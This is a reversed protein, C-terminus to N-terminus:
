APCPIPTDELYFSSGDFQPLSSGKLARGGDLVHGADIAIFPNLIRRIIADHDRNVSGIMEEPNYRRGVKVGLNNKILESRIIIQQKSTFYKSSIELIGVGNHNDRAEKIGLHNMLWVGGSIFSLFACVGVAIVEFGSVLATAGAILFTTAAISTTRAFIKQARTPQFEKQQIPEPKQEPPSTQPLTTPTVPAAPAEVTPTTPNTPILEAPAPTGPAAPAETRPTASVLTIKPCQTPIPAIPVNGSRRSVTIIIQDGSENRVTTLHKLTPSNERRDSAKLEKALIDRLANDTLKNIDEKDGALTIKEIETAIRLEDSLTIQLLGSQRAAKIEAIVANIIRM